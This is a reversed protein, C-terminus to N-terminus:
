KVVLWSDKDVIRHKGRPMDSISKRMEKLLNRLQSKMNFDLPWPQLSPHM